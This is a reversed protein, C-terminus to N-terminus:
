RRGYHYRSVRCLSKYLFILFILFNSFIFFLTLFFIIIIRNIKTCTVPVVSIIKNPKSQDFVCIKDSSTVTESNKNNKVVWARYIIIFCIFFGVNGTYESIGSM